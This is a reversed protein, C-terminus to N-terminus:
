DTLYNKRSQIIYVCARGRFYITILSSSAYGHLKRLEKEDNVTLSKFCTLLKVKKGVLFVKEFQYYLIM